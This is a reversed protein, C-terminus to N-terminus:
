RSAPATEQRDPARQQQTNDNESSSNRSAMRFVNTDILFEDGTSKVWQNIQRVMEYIADAYNQLYKRNVKCIKLLNQFQYPAFDGFDVVLYKDDKLQRLLLYRDPYDTNRESIETGAKVVYGEAKVDTVIYLDTVRKLVAEFASIEKLLMVLSISQENDLRQLIFPNQLIAHMNKQSISGDKFVQFGLYGNKEITDKFQEKKTSLFSSIGQFSFDRVDYPHVIKELQNIVSLIERDIQMKAYDYLEKNLKKQSLKRTVDYVLYLLPIAVFAAAVNLMLGKLDEDLKTGILYLVLGAILCASYPAIRLLIKTAKNM